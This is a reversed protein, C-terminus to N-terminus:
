KEPFSEPYNILKDNKKRIFHADPILGFSIPFTDKSVSGNRKYQKEEVYIIEILFSSGNVCKNMNTTHIQKLCLFSISKDVQRIESYLPRRFALFLLLNEIMKQLVRLWSLEKIMNRLHYPSKSTLSLSM